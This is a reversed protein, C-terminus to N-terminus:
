VPEDTTYTITTWSGDPNRYRGAPQRPQSPDVPETREYVTHTVSGDANRVPPPPTGMPGNPDMPTETIFETKTVPRGQRPPQSSTPTPRTSSPQRPPQQAPRRFQKPAASEPEFWLPKLDAVRIATVVGGYWEVLVQDAPLKFEVDILVRGPTRPTAVVGRGPVTVDAKPQVISLYPPVHAPRQVPPPPPTARRKRGFLSM